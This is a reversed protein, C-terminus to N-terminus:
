RKIGRLYQSDLQKLKNQILTPFQEPANLIGQSEAKEFGQYNKIGGRGLLYIKKKM